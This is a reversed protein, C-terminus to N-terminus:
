KRAGGRRLNKLREAKSKRFEEERRETRRREDEALVAALDSLRADPRAAVQALLSAFQEFFRLVTPQDFLDTSYLLLGGIGGPMDALSLILDLHSGGTDALLPTIELGAGGLDAPQTSLLDIKLQFLPARRLDRKLGLADVVRDFPAEQHAYAELTVDRVSALLERFTPDGDVRVRMALQNVFFGILGETERRDRNSANTGVVVDREGTLHNLLAAFAALLTMYLTAGERRSLARLSESLEADLAVTQQAGRHTQEEPRPRDGTLELAPPAAALQRKWYDLQQQLAGGALHARQWYAYDAYQITLAPLEAEVGARRAEYVAALENLFVGLSWADSVIHHMTLLLVHEEDALRLLRVRLLPGKSLDFGERAEEGALRTAEAERGAEDLGRLDEAELRLEWAEGVVQAPEGGVTAFTTRLSEHRRIIENLAFELAPVDLTGRLRAGGPCNYLASGPDLQELFWLRQQAYSLPLRGDRPAPTIVAQAARGEEPQEAEIFLALQAVTPGEFLTRLPLEVHFAERVRSVVQTALLSHGGLDFFSDRIGVHELGLVGAWIGALIEETANRPAAFSEALDPRSEDPAPLARRDIKGNTTMPMTALMVFAAPVMYPPLTESLHQRLETVSVASAPEVYAVLEQSDGHLKRAVVEAKAVAPHRLLHSTVEGPEVRFGRIQVQDDIRGLYVLEGNALLKALDGSRYLREAPKYPNTIFKQRTLEDRGLYGRAVGEGGVCVEGPVGVPLLRQAEDMVYATTTPIPVGVNSVNAEIERRTIEKFTVHVTTETIGYMNVLKVAPFADKWEALQVPHLEEGGFVVYRLALDAPTRQLAEAALNNFASPTQNLVTVREDALLKLFLAPDKTEAEPVLVLRGGYLLAGYMEWVSFDFAYSHFMTWVDDQTFDFQMRDNLMLRVVNRHELLAGKPRGTSGSTYICYALNDPTATSTPPAAPRAAVAEADRDLLTLTPLEGSLNRLGRGTSVLHKTGSDELMFRLREEPFDPNLPLYAGGAKMIALLAVIIEASRDLCVAVLADPGVGQERLHHALRNAREDLERYTLSAGFGTVAVREPTRAAQEEFLGHITKDSPSAAATDNWDFLQRREEEEGLLRVDGVRADPDATVAGLLVGFHRMMQGATSEDFIDSNYVLAGTLGEAGRRVCLHLDYKGYGVNTEVVRAPSGGFDLEAPEDDEFQFLVDFLATRSMDKEPKLELVLKDFQMERHARAQGVTDSVRALLDRFTPNGALSSRLVLLNAFPGVARETGPRRSEASTGVVIEEQRAYRHLLAKFAALVVSFQDAGQRDGLEAVRRAVGADLTFTHRAATFTHVAPRKRDEPLELAALRGRLQWKWYFLLPEWAPATLGLQWRSYSGYRVDPAPLQPARGSALANYLESLEDALLRLSARDAVIHHVTLVLLSEGDGVARFLAARVPLDSGLDFPLAAEALASELLADADAPGAEVVKLTVTERPSVVQRGRANETVIRTRLAEHRAVLANLCSELLAADVRGGLSLVLPINHYVPSTEYVNGKEFQDIFWLREQHYSLPHEAEAAPAEALAPLEVGGGFALEALPRDPTQTLGELLEAFRASMREITAPEFLAADYMLNGELGEAGEWLYLDLDTRVVAQSEFDAPSLALGDLELSPVPMNQYVLMAQFLPQRSLDRAPQLEEVLKEFPVDQHAQAQLTTERVQRLLERFTPRAGLDSRFVLTNVFFGVLDETEPRTRGAVPAGVLIDDQGSYRHLLTQFAALMTMFLTVGERQSLAKLADSLQAPLAFPLQAARFNQVAPRPFDTPLELAPTAGALQRKWYGLQEDLVGGALYERQWAAYDAYQVPLEALPSAEGAAFARYLAAVERVLVGMSWGDSVIHHMTLLLVHEEEALRLLKVRLLPGAALDFPKRAEEGVLREAEAEREAVPLAGLDTVELTLADAPSIIQVAVGGEEAFTTRLAEHRRVVEGLTQELAPVDLRGGLRVAAPINYSASTPELQHFFWLRQQAYSAPLGGGDREVRAIAPLRESGNSSEDIRRALSEVTPSEFLARLPLEVGLERHLRSVVQTARLSHGGLAFFDSRTGVRELGLVEAWIASIIEETQTRPAVYTEEAGAAPEIDSLALRDVKGNPTLPMEPVLVFASPIMYSPLREGLYGRLRQELGDTLAGRLPSNAYANWDAEAEDTTAVVPRGKAAGARRFVLDFTDAGGASWIVEATFPTGEALAWADEPEVGAASTVASVSERLQAVTLGGRAAALQRAGEVAARLRANPVRAVVLSDPAEELLLRRVSAPTLSQAEWDLSVRGAEEFNQADGGVHLTVDYRFRSMENGHRGRKLQMEVRSVGPLRRALAEFFSPDLCLEKEKSVQQRVRRRLEEAPMEGPARSLEISAHFAELLPLSRVDGVFVSGGAGVAAVARTLVRVLYEVDPFYQVVSNLIVTDFAESEVGELADAAARRLVVNQFRVADRDMQARIYALAQPSIDTGCYHAAHPAVRFAILGTGCGIELVRRPKLELIRGVAHGLWERMEEAPIPEGTYSSNWGSINFTPDADASEQKYAEDWAMRWQETLEDEHAETQAAEERGAEADASAVVYAVLSKDTEGDGRTIVVAEGVSPHQALASEIEGLEIRHGRVKVQHDARGLFEIDGSALRRVVDGTRYLRAGPTQSFPDPTFREATLDPRHIYGRALGDGGIYLEGPVGVPVPQMHGDAIYLQTNAIPHGLGVTGAAAETVQKVSSWVTTETPGYMNWLSAGRTLLKRALEGGLAEGGCLMKLRACGEWGSELLLRWTAPTAQMVTAGCAEIAEALRKGDVATERSAVVVRAGCLLPLYLELAAIDFSLTTVSLLVDDSSLGPESRMTTLFNVLARHPLQVGKPRGTSGSTYITYALNEPATFNPLPAADRLSVAPWDADLRVVTLGETPLESVLSEQTVLVSAGADRLVYDIRERPYAPDLPVYAAGSKLVGLLGVLMEASREVCVGVLTEANVGLARLHRALRNSRASLEAYTFTTDEFEVAVAAPTRAAQTEFLEHFCADPYEAETENWGRVLLSRESATLLELDEVRREPAEVAAELLARFHGAIRAATSADFLDTNYELTGGLFGGPEERMLLGLDFKATHNDVGVPSLTVGSLELASAPANQLIFMVQFIPSRSLDRRPALEEVLKEFPAHQHAYAGLCVERVRRLLAAFRPNGSVDTRLVLMNSFFGVLAETESHTRNAVDSGVVVDKQGTYRSLLVQWAALLTMFLTVGERRSLENLAHSLDAPLWFEERAGRQTQVAPRPRDTPLELAPPAGALQKKWYGLQEALVEGRLWRQQWAAFDAYQVALEALPSALGRSFADYLAAVEGVLLGLSWGDIVIHHMTFLAAHEGAGLRLLRARFLPGAALDFPQRAEENILKQLEAEREAHDALHTLDTVPLAVAAAPRIVQVAVGGEEAFTTRLAEHRRVVETLAREFAALDLRGTLRVAMPVNYASDDFELQHIFWLRQQAYSTPLTSGREVRTIPPLQEAAGDGNVAEDIRQALSEVTPSEFLARLPLEVGFAKHLRSVVQTARLSHGGLTFFDSRAGVRGLGLVEAWIAAITEETETRPAVYTEEAAASGVELRSLERRDVKGNPTLPMAPLLVFASPIMYSPLREGLYGRLRPVLRSAFKAQLPNNVYSGWPKPEFGVAEERGDAAPAGERVFLVDFTEGNGAGDWLVEVAYPLSEGLAPFEEPDVGEGGLSAQLAARLEGATEDPRMSALLEVTKFEAECRANPVGTLRLSAPRTEDLMARLSALSLGEREWDLRAAKARAPAEGGVKLIVDYRFRSLENLYGGRKLRIQVETIRPLHARLAHFFDPAIVLEEEQLLSKQVHQRLQAVPLTDAAQHLQVSAHFAKLSTLSRVDGVFVSGGDKVAGVAGELVQLLYNVEPFYQVVSNIVVTDFEGAEIGKFDEAGRQLLTVNSLGRTAGLRRVYDLANPSFDTACYHRIHPAVRSLLLGTGCGLELVREPRLGLILAVTQEVWERMEEAPIPEGTYSSNWGSINFTPDAQGSDHSYAEDWAMRWQETVEEERAEAEAAEAGTEEQGTVVFAVLRQGGGEEDRAVVVTEAVSPHQALASEIEGLEIRHGRVKVQHDARGLFEIDGSALRRVVDGTRYLRAGPAPSFADPVFREATLAPRNLYGRAVGDGGIYLEGPVGVPAPRRGSDLVYLQTNAIPHGIGVVGAGAEKVEKVSSWVTTETPGYMNWLSACKTLLRGALEGGLAEGGCLVKLGEDGAWGAELLLRWTAPTAQMVTAGCASIAKALAHGDAATERSAVVVRAGCLLPLYLELAAIDFSLTTVSLLVDDSSLGPERRMTTLFNVLARHPLQVGKPRGTSGSTYITYALNEPTAHAPLPAADQLSVAPWDADLRVVTLGEAPLESVLSEQTLLIGAGSDELMFALRDKPFAPDLPVYAAGAKLVGLVAVVMDFSREVCVGVLTETGAGLERLHRALQNSRASLEAYTFTTDEFEVAVAAPTRAAQTEFLEHFCEAPYEAETENLGGVLLSRESATLLELDELRRQPEAVVARLLTEYHGAIRAATSADFLDTNYELGGALQGDETEQMSLLLDFKATHNDVAVPSLTVGSLELASAPANQLIFMVQFIPSRSLDRRPALEEVLKEFPLDQHTYAGLTAERVQRLLEVFRPNGGTQARLVLTNVFFGILGETEARNRNAIPSGVVIDEQGSYKSLLTQWAALLTMFLTAGEKRSLDKLSANLEAPLRFTHHAGRFSEVAPRPRDTPLELVPPAGALHGRWYELHSDLVEGRLWEDQWVAFDAYQLPLEELPSPQGASFAKYLAAMEAVFVGTSWGDGIIHHMSLLLVYDEDALRLLKVRILPWRSLDFPLQAHEAALRGVAADREGAGLHRLDAPEISLWEPPHVIQVVREEVMGFTTRLSEHRRVIENLGRELVDVDLPGTLRFAAPINYAASLPEFRSMLWLGKQAHSVPFVYVGEAPPASGEAGGDHLPLDLVEM